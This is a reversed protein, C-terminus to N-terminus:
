DYLVVFAGGLAGDAQGGGLPQLEEPDPRRRARPQDLFAVSLHMERDPNVM